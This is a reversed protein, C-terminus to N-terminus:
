RLGAPTEHLLINIILKSFNSGVKCCTNYKTTNKIIM